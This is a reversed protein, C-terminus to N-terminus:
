KVFVGWGKEFEETSIGLAKEIDGNNKVLKRIGEMGWKEIIYDAISYGCSYIDTNESDNMEAITPLNDRYFNRSQGAEYLAMSEWLWTVYSNSSESISYTVCHTFEHVAVQMISDYNHRPGPNVPSVMQILDSSPSIGVMWDQPNRVFATISEHFEKLNPYIRVTIIPVNEADLDHVIREYSEELKEAIKDICSEDDKTYHIKFHETSKILVKDSNQTDVNKTGTGKSCSSLYAMVALLIILIIARKM